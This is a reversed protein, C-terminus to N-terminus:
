AAAGRAETPGVLARGALARATWREVIRTEVGLHSATWSASRGLEVLRLGALAREHASAGKCRGFTVLRDVVVWDADRSVSTAAAAPTSAAGPVGAARRRRARAKSREQETLGGAVGAAQHALAFERCQTLVPCGACVRKAETVQALAPGSTGVPFFLEPDTDRCAAQNRWHKNM